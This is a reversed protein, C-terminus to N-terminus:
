ARRESRKVVPAPRPRAPWRGPRARDSCASARCRRRWHRRAHDDPEVRPAPAARVIEARESDRGSRAPGSRRAPSPEFENSTQVATGRRLGPDLGASAPSPRMPQRFGEAGPGRSEGPFSELQVFALSAASCTGIRRACRRRRSRAWRTARCPTPSSSGGRSSSAPSTPWAPSCRRRTSRRIPARRGGGGGSRRPRSPARRDGRERRRGAGRRARARDGQSLHQARRRHDPGEGPRRHRGPRGRGHDRRRRHHLLRGARM